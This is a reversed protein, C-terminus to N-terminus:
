KVGPKGRGPTATEPWPDAKAEDPKADPQAPPTAAPPEEVEGDVFEGPAPLEDLVEPDLKTRVRGDQAIAMELQPSQPLWRRAEVIASKWAMSEYNDVWAPSNKAASKARHRTEVDEPRLPQFISEGNSLRAVAYYLVPKGREGLLIPEHRVVEDPGDYRVEFRGQDVENAFVTRAVIKAVHGSRRALEIVGKYGIQFNAAMYYRKRGDVEVSEKRPIIWALGLPGPELGLQACTMLAGLFSASTCEGLQPNQRVLTTAIRAMRDPNLQNPLVLAMQPKLDDILALLTKKAGGQEDRPALARKADEATAM